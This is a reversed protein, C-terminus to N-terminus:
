VNTARNKIILETLNETTNVTPDVTVAELLYSLTEGIEKGGIGLKILDNGGLALDQISPCFGDKKIREMNEESLCEAGRLVRMLEAALYADKGFKLLFRRVGIDDQPVCFEKTEIINLVSNKLANSYKM